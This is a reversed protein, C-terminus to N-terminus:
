NTDPYENRVNRLLMITEEMIHKKAIKLICEITDESFPGPIKLNTLDEIMKAVDKIGKIKEEKISEKVNKIDNELQKILEKTSM